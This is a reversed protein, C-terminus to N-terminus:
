IVELLMLVAFIAVGAALGILRPTSLFRMLSSQWM